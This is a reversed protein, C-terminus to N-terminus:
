TTTRILHQIIILQLTRVSLDSQTKETGITSRSAFQSVASMMVDCVTKVLDVRNQQYVITCLERYTAKPGYQQTWMKLLKRKQESLDGAEEIEEKMYEQLGFYPFLDRWQTLEKAIDAIHEESTITENLIDCDVPIGAHRFCEELSPKPTPVVPLLPPPPQSPQLVGIATSKASTTSNNAMTEGEPEVSSIVVNESQVTEARLADEIDQALGSCHVRLVGLLGRWTCDAIGKGQVWHSLIDMNIQEVNNNHELVIASVVAGHMDNLLAIGVEYFKNGVETAINFHRNKGPFDSLEYMTPKRGALHFFTM